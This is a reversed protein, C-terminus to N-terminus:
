HYPFDLCHILMSPHHVVKFDYYARLELSWRELRQSRAHSVKASELWELPKHDTELTFLAGLLFHQFKRVAWVIALCEKETTTYKRETSNLSGSAYEVVIGHLTLM